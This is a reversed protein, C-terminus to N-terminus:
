TSSKEGTKKKKSESVPNETDKTRLYEKAQADIIPSSGVLCRTLATAIQELDRGNNPIARAFLKWGGIRETKMEGTDEDMVEIEIAQFERQEEIPMQHFAIRLMQVPTQFAAAVADGNGFTSSLWAQDQLTFKRLHYTKGSSSLSFESDEPCIESLTLAQM